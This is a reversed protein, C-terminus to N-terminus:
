AKTATLRLKMRSKLRDATKTHIINRKAAKDLKSEAASLQSQAEAGKGDKVMRVFKKVETRFESRASRNRDRKKDAQRASKAASKSNAM